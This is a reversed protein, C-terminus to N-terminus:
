YELETWLGWALGAVGLLALGGGFLWLSSWMAAIAVAWLGSVLSLGGGVIARVSWEVERM